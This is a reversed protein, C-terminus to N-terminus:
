LRSLFERIYDSTLIEGPKTRKENLNVSKFFNKIDEVKAFTQGNVTITRIENSEPKFM